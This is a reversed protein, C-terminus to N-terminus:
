AEADDKFINLQGKNKNKKKSKSIRKEAKTEKLVLKISPANQKESSDDFRDRWGATNKLMFIVFASSVENKLGKQVLKGEQIDKALALTEEFYKNRKAYKSIDSAPFGKLVAFNKLYVNDKEKFWEILEDALKEIDKNTRNDM